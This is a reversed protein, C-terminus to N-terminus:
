RCSTPRSRGSCTTSSRCGSSPPPGCAPTSCRSAARARADEGRVHRRRGQEGARRGRRPGRAHRRGGRHRRQVPDARPARGRRRGRRRRRHDAQGGAGGRGRLRGGPARRVRRGGLRAVTDQPRVCSQLRRAVEKLLLDGAAHGLTDNVGKFGDLDLYVIANPGPRRQARTLAHTVRDSFLARNALGTLDDRLARDRLEAELAHRESVDRSNLVLGNVSPDGFLDNLATEVHPWSGDGRRLRCEILPRVSPEGASPAWPPFSPTSTRRTSRSRGPGRTLAREIRRDPILWMLAVLLYLACAIGPHVFAAGIALACLLPSLKGKFDRGLAAALMGDTGGIAPDATAFGHVGHRGDAAGRRLAGDPVSAFHNEGMWAPSSRCWRCGSCCTCTRGCSRGRQSAPHLAAHPPPQELLHRRLRLEARLQPLGAAAAAARRARHRAAGEAGAGHHHHHDRHVGDSFAELRGKGM